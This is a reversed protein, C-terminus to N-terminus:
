VGNRKLVMRIDDEFRHRPRDFPRKGDPKGVFIRYPNRTDGM